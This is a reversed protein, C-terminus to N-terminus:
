EGQEQKFAELKKDDYGQRVKELLSRLLVRDGEPAAESMGELTFRIAAGLYVLEQVTFM